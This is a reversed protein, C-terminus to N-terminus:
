NGRGEKKKKEKKKRPGLHPLQKKKLVHNKNQSM